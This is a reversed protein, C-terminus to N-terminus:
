GDCGGDGSIRCRSWKPAINRCFEKDAGNEHMPSPVAVWFRAQWCLGLLDPQVQVGPQLQSPSLWKLPQHLPWSLHTWVPLRVMQPSIGLQLQTGAVFGMLTTASCSASAAAAEAAALPSSPVVPVAFAVPLLQRPSPVGVSFRTHLYMWESLAQM